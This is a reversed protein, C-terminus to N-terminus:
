VAIPYHTNFEEEEEFVYEWVGLKSYQHHTTPHTTYDVVVTFMRDGDEQEHSITLKRDKYPILTLSYGGGNENRVLEYKGYWYWGGLAGLELAAKFHSTVYEVGSFLLRTLEWSIFKLNVSHDIFETFLTKVEEINKTKLVIKSMKQVIM